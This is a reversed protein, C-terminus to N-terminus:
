GSAWLLLTRTVGILGSAWQSETWYSTSPCGQAQSEKPPSLLMPETIKVLMMHNQPASIHDQSLLFLCITSIGTGPSPFVLESDGDPMLNHGFCVHGNWQEPAGTSISWFLPVYYLDPSKTTNAVATSCFRFSINLYFSSLVVSKPSSKKNKNWRNWIKTVNTSEGVLLLLNFWHSRKLVSHESGVSPFKLRLGTEM